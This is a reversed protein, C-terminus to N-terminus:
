TSSCLASTCSPSRGGDVDSPVLNARWGHARANGARHRVLAVAEGTFETGGDTILGSGKAVTGKLFRGM